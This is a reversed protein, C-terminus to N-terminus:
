QSDMHDILSFPSVALKKMNIARGKCTEECLGCGRCLRSDYSISVGKRNQHKTATFARFPCRAACRGCQTCQSETFETVYRSLPWVKELHLDMTLQHPFCCDPCCNCLGGDVMGEDNIFLEANQTLGKRNAEKIIEVARETSIAWGIDRDNSFRLCNYVPKNCRGEMLRCDCPWLFVQDINSVLEVAEDLLVYEPWSTGNDRAQGNWFSEILAKQRRKYDTFEWRNLQKRVDPPIDKWGEFLAWHEYRRHFDEVQYRNDSTRKIVCRQYASTLLEELQSRSLPPSWSTLSAELQNLTLSQNGLLQILTLERQTYFRDLRSSLFEPIGCRKLFSQDM